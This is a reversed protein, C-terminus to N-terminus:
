DPDDPQLFEFMKIPLRLTREFIGFVEAAIARPDLPIVTPDRIDGNVGVPISTMTGGIIYGVVPIMRVLRDIASFPAVLVSLASDGDRLQITGSAALGLAPSDFLGERLVFRGEGFGGRVELDRYAFGEDDLRVKGQLVDAISKLSLINGLMAFRMVKGDRARAMLDGELNRLLEGPRGQTRFSATLDMRGTLWLKEGSLCRAIEDVNRQKVAVQASAYLKQPTIGIDFPIAINCVMAETVKMEIRDPNLTLLAHVPKARIGRYEMFDARLSVQGKVPIPWMAVAQKWPAPPRAPTSAPAGAPRPAPVLRDIVLGPSSIRADLFAGEPVRRVEGEVALRQGDYEVDASRLVLREGASRVDFRHVVAPRAFLWDLRVNEARLHGEGRVEPKADRDLVTAYDGEIRGRGDITADKFVRAVTRGTLLGAFKLSLMRDTMTLAVTADSETDRVHLQRVALSYRTVAAAARIAPGDRVGLSVQVDVGDVRNWRLSHLAFGQLPRPTFRSPIRAKEMAWAIFREGMEGSPAGAQLSPTKTRYGHMTADLRARADLLEVLVGSAQLAEPTVRVAGGDVRATGSSDLVQARLQRPVITLDYDLSGAPNRLPVVLRGVELDLRGSVDRIRTMLPALERRERLWAYLEGADLRATGRGITVAAPGQTIAEGSVGEFESAGFGGNVRGFDVRGRSLRAEGSRLSVPLPLGELKFSADSRDVIAHIQWAKNRVSTEVRGVARGRLGHVRAMAQRQAPPVLRRAIELGSAADIDYDAKLRISGDQPQWGFSGNSIRSSGLIASARTLSLTQDKWRLQGAIGHVPEEIVPALLSGEALTLSIEMSGPQALGALRPASSTVQVDRIVGGQVRSAWAQVMPMDGAFTEALSRLQRVDVAAVRLDARADGGGPERRLQGTIDPALDGLRLAHLTVELQGGRAAGTISGHVGELAIQAGARRATLSRVGARLTASFTEQGDAELVAHARADSVTLGVTAGSGHRQLMQQLRIGDLDLEARAAATTYDLRADAQARDWLPSSTSASLSLGRPDSSARATLRITPISPWHPARIDVEADEITLALEPAHRKIQPAFAHALQRYRAAPDAQPPGAQAPRAPVNLLLRPQRLHVHRIEARGGLLALLDLRIEAEDVTGSAITAIDYRLKRIALHPAPLLNLHMEDWAVPGGALQSLREELRAQAAPLDLLRPALLLAALLLAAPGTLIWAFQRLLVSRRTASM